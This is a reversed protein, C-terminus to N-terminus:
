EWFDINEWASHSKGLSEGGSYEDISGTPDNYHDYTPDPLISLPRIDNGADNYRLTGSGALISQTSVLVIECLPSKYERKM